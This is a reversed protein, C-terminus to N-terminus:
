DHPPYERYEGYTRTGDAEVLMTRLRFDSPDNGSELNVSRGWMGLKARSGNRHGHVQTVRDLPNPRRPGPGGFVGETAADFVADIDLDYDPKGPKRSSGYVFTGEDVTGADLRFLGDPGWDGHRSVLDPHVGGHSVVLAEGDPLTVSVVPLMRGVLDCAIGACDDPMDAFSRRSQAPLASLDYGDDTRRINRWHLDHNGLVLVANGRRAMADVARLTDEEQGVPGRDLIDGVFVTLRDPDDTLVGAALLLNYHGHVDGVLLVSEYGRADVYPTKRIDASLANLGIRREGPLTMFDAVNAYAERVKSAPVPVPRLANRRLCEDLGVGRQCNVWVVEYGNDRALDLFPRMTPRRAGMSDVIVTEGYLMRARCIETALGFAQRSANASLNYWPELGADTVATSSPNCLTRLADTSIVLDGYDAAATSKGCGPAGQLLYLRRM